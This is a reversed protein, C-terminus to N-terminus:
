VRYSDNNPPELPGTPANTWLFLHTATMLDPPFHTAYRPATRPPTPLLTAMAQHLAPLFSLANSAETLLSFQCSLQLDEGFVLEAPTHYIDEKETACFALFVIPLADVWCSPHPQARIAEKLCRHFREVMGNAQSHYTTTRQRRTGRFVLLDCWARSEFQM